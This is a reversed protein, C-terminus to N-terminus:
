ATCCFPSQRTASRAGRLSSKPKKLVGRLPLRRPLRYSGAICSLLDDRERISPRPVRSLVFPTKEVNGPRTARSHLLVVFERRTIGNNRSRRRDAGPPVFPSYKDVALEHNRSAGPLGRDCIAAVRGCLAPKRSDRPHGSDRIQLGLITKHTAYM